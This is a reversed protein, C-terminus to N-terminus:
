HSPSHQTHGKSGVAGWAQPFDQTGEGPSLGALSKNSLPCLSVSSNDMQPSLAQLAKPPM